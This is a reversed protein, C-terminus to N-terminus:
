ANWIVMSTIAILVTFLIVCFRDLILVLELWEEKYRAQQEEHSLIHVQSPTALEQQSQQISIINTESESKNGIINANGNTDSHHVSTRRRKCRCQMLCGLWVVGVTYLGRNMRTYTTHFYSRLIITTAILSICNLLLSSFYFLSIVPVQSPPILSATLQQFLTTSLLITISLTIREGSEPPLLFTLISLISLLVSPVVFNM